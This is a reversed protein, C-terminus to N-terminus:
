PHCLGFKLKKMYLCVRSALVTCYLVTCYLVTCDASRALLLGARVGPDDRGGAPGAGAGRPSGVQWPQLSVASFLVADSFEYQM